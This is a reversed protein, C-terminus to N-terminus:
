HSWSARASAACALQLWQAIVHPGVVGAVQNTVDGRIRRIRRSVMPMPRAGDGLAGCDPDERVHVLQGHQDFPDFIPLADHLSLTYIETTATDNFFFFFFIVKFLVFVNSHVGSNISYRGRM